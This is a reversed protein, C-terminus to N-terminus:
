LRRLRVIRQVSAGRPLELAEAIAPSAVSVTCDLLQVQTELGMRTLGNIMTDFSGRVTPAAADYTVVTGIGRQRRVMGAVALENMARKVTIRSVGLSQTLDQEAPLRANVKLRGDLIAARLLEYIQQYLPVPSMEDIQDSKLTLTPADLM